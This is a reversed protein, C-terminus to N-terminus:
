RVVIKASKGSATRIIYLGKPLANSVEGFRLRSAVTAGSLSYAECLEDDHITMDDGVEGVGDTLDEIIPGVLKWPSDLYAQACGKRVHVKVKGMMQYWSDLGLPNESDVEPASEMPCYIDAIEPCGSFVSGIREIGKGLTVTRISSYSFLSDPLERLGDPLDMFPTKIGQFACDELEVLSEPLELDITCRNFAWRCIRTIGEHLKMTKMGTCDQFWGEGICTISKPLTISTFPSESFCYDGIYTVNDPIRLDFGNWLHSLCHNGLYELSEPLELETLDSNWFADGCIKKLTGPLILREVAAHWFNTDIEEVGEPVTFETPLDHDPVHGWYSPFLLMVKMDHTYLVDDVSRYVPNADDVDVVCLEPMNYIASGDISVVTEPISLSSAHVREFAYPGISTVRYSNGNYEVYPPIVIDGLYSTQFGGPGEDFDSTVMATMDYDDMVYWIDDIQVPGHTRAICAFTETIIAVAMVLVFATKSLNGNMEM